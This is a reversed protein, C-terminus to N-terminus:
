VIRYQTYTLIYIRLYYTPLLYTLSHTPLHTPLDSMGM